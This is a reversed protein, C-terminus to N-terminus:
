PQVFKAGTETREGPTIVKQGGGSWAPASEIFHTMLDEFAAGLDPGISVPQDELRAMASIISVVEAIGNRVEFVPAGSAGFDADCDMIVIGEQVGIVGCLDQLSPATDRDRAYSVVALEDASEADGSILFPAIKSTRIPQSLELLALDFPVAETSKRGARLVYAPHAVVRRVDRYAEARGTRLGALFHFRDAGIESGDKDFLCHAATLVLDEAILAGSCFGKGDIDVRGVGEWGRGAQGTQLSVLGSGQAAAMSALCLWLALARFTLIM